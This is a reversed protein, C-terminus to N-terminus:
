RYLEDLHSLLPGSCSSIEQTSWFQDGIMPKSKVLAGKALMLDIQRKSIPLVSEKVQTNLELWNIVCGEILKSEKDLVKDLSFAEFESVLRAGLSYGAIETVGSDRLEAKIDAMTVKSDGDGFLDAALRLRFFQGIFQKGNLVPNLFSVSALNKFVSSDVSMAILAGSRIAFLHIPCNNSAKLDIVITQLDQAWGTLTADAHDGFSDGTGYHDFLVMAGGQKSIQDAMQSIAYRSKNAEEAFTQVVLVMFGPKKDSPSRTLHFLEGRVGEKFEASFEM